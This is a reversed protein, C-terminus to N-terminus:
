TMLQDAYVNSTDPLQGYRRMSNIERTWKKLKLNGKNKFSITGMTGVIIINVITIIAGLPYITIYDKNLM